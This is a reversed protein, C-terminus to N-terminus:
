GAKKAEILDLTGWITRVRKWVRVEEFGSDEILGRLGGAAHLRTTEFGDLLQVALFATRMLVDQGRGWDAIQLQGGPHLVRQAQALAAAKTDPKLHHFLLSSTVVDQGDLHVPLDDAMAQVLEIRAGHDSAKLRASDLVEHDADVGVVSAQPLAGALMVTLSGTGCGLDLVRKPNSRKVREVLASRFLRERMTAALVPDYLKTLSRHGLAPIYSGEVQNSRREANSM